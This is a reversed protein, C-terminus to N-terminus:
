MDPNYDLVKIAKVYHAYEIGKPSGCTPNWIANYGCPKGKSLFGSYFIAKHIPNRSSYSVEVEYFTKEKWGGEPPIIERKESFRM